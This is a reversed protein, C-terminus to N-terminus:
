AQEAGPSDIDSLLDDDDTDLGPYSCDLGLLSLLPSDLGTRRILQLSDDLSLVPTNFDDLCSLKDVCDITGQALSNLCDIDLLSRLLAGEMGVVPFRLTLLLFPSAKGTSTAGHQKVCLKQLERQLAAAATESVCLLLIAAPFPEEDDEFHFHREVLEQQEWVSYRRMDKRDLSLRVEVEGTDDDELPIIIEQDAIMIEGNARARYGGCHLTSFSFDISPNPSITVSVPEEILVQMDAGGGEEEEDDDDSSLVISEFPSSTTMNDQCSSLSRRPTAVSDGAELHPGPTPDDGGETFQLITRDLSEPDGDAEPETQCVRTPSLEGDKGEEGNLRLVSERHRKPSGTGNCPSAPDKRKRKVSNQVEKEPDSLRDKIFEDCSGTDDVPEWRLLVGCGVVEAYKFNDGNDKGRIVQKGDKNEERDEEDDVNQSRRCLRSRQSLPSKKKQNSKPTQSRNKDAEKQSSRRDRCILPEEKSRGSELPTSSGRRCKRSTPSQTIREMYAKGQETELVNTLILCPQRRAMELTVAAAHKHDLLTFGNTHQSDCHKLKCGAFATWSVQRELKGCKPSLCPMSIKLPNGVLNNDVNFPITLARRRDMM